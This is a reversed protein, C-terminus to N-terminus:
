SKGLTIHSVLKEKEDEMETATTFIGMAAREVCGQPLFSICVTKLDADHVRKLWCFPWRSQQGFLGPKPLGQGNCTEPRLHHPSKCEERYDWFTRHEWFRVALLLAVMRKM